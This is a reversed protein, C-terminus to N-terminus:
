KFVNPINIDKKRVFLRKSVQGDPDYIEYYITADSGIIETGRIWTRDGPDFPVRPEAILMIPAKKDNYGTIERAYEKDPFEVLLVDLPIDSPFPESGISRVQFDKARIYLVRSVKGDPDHIEYYITGGDAQIAKKYVWTYTGTPLIIRPDRIAMVPAGQKNSRVKDRLFAKRSVTVIMVDSPVDSSSGSSGGSNSGGTNANTAVQTKLVKNQAELAIIEAASATVTLQLEEIQNNLDELSQVTPTESKAQTIVPPPSETPTESPAITETPFATVTSTSTPATTETPPLSPEPNPTPPTAGCASLFILTLVISSKVFAINKKM